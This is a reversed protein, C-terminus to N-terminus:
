LEIKVSGDAMISDDIDDDDNAIDDDNPIIHEGDDLKVTTRIFCFHASSKLRSLRDSYRKEKKYSNWQVFSM